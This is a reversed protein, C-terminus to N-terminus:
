IEGELNADSAMSMMAEVRAAALDEAAKAAENKRSLRNSANRGHGVSLSRPISNGRSPPKLSDSNNEMTIRKVVEDVKAAAYEEANTSSRSSQSRRSSTATLAKNRKELFKQWSESKASSDSHSSSSKKLDSNSSSSKKLSLSEEGNRGTSSSGTKKVAKLYDSAFKSKRGKTGSGVSSPTRPPLGKKDDVMNINGCKMLDTFGNDSANRLFALHAQPMSNSNSLKESGEDFM